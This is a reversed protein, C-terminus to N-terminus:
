SYQSLHWFMITISEKPGLYSCISSCIIMDVLPNSSYFRVCLYKRAVVKGGNKMSIHQPSSTHSLPLVYFAKQAAAFGAKDGACFLAHIM